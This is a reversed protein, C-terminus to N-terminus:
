ILVLKIKVMLPNELFTFSTTLNVWDGLLVKHKAFGGHPRSKKYGHSIANISFLELGSRRQWVVSRVRCGLFVMLDRPLFAILRQSHRASFKKWSVIWATPSWVPKSFSFLFVVLFFFLLFLFLPNQKNYHMTLPACTYCGDLFMHCNCLM